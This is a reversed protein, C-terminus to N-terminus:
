ITKFINLCQFSHYTPDASQTLNNVLRMCVQQGSTILYGGVTHTFSTFNTALLNIDSGKIQFDPIGPPITTGTAYYKFNAASTSTNADVFGFYFDLFGGTVNTPTTSWGDTSSGRNPTISFLVWMCDPLVFCNPTTDGRELFYLEGSIAPIRIAVSNAIGFGVGVNAPSWIAGNPDANNSILIQGDAIPAELQFIGTGDNIHISGKATGPRSLTDTFELNQNRYKSAM